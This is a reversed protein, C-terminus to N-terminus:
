EAILLQTNILYKSSIETNLEESLTTKTTAAIRCFKEVPVLVILTIKTVDKKTTIVDEMGKALAGIEKLSYDITVRWFSNKKSVSILPPDLVAAVDLIYSKTIIAVPKWGNVIIM